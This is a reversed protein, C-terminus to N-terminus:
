IRVGIICIDDVQEHRGRWNIHRNYLAERQELMPLHHISIVLERLSKKSYKKEKEGGFQDAYGDTFLYITDGRQLKVEHHTFPQLHDTKGIPQKDAKTEILAGNRVIWLPNNAGAWQLQGTEINLACLSVDMGDQVNESEDKSFDKVVLEAVKDLILAPQALDYEKVARNLANSCVVSVLAGPVGHGTCDCAAFLVMEEGNSSVQEMWYFDGAVIDKPLYFVFSDDLYKKVVKPPPLITAQIRKAYEISSLIEKNQYEVINKQQEVEEKQKTIIINAQQKQRYSRFIFLSVALMFVLGLIVGNRQLKQKEIQADKKAQEIKNAARLETEKKEVEFKTKIDSLQKSNETNFISDTLEKFKKHNLYAAKYNGLGEEAIALNDYAKRMHQIEGIEKSISISQEAQQKALAYKKLTNNLASMNLLCIGIGSKDELEEMIKLSKSYYELAKPYNSQVKYNIGINTYCNSVGSKDGLEERLILSKTYFELAKPYNNQDKYNIGINNYCRSIGSKDSIEKSIKLSKTYFELAKPYNSLDSYLLGFNNYCDSIGKKDELEEAIKLTKTFYELAKPYNSQNWYIVGINNFCKSIRSKDGFEETIKLSKTFYELAKPYNSERRYILGINNYCGAIGKKDGLEEFVKLSKTYYELAKPYNGQKKYIIGINNYCKSLGSQFGLKIALSIGKNGNKLGESYNGITEYKDSLAYLTNVKNTDEKQAKLVTLLSDINSNQAFGFCPFLLLILLFCNKKM